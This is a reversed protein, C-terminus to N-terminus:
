TRKAKAVRKPKAVGASTGANAGKAQLFNLRSELACTPRGVLDADRRGRAATM